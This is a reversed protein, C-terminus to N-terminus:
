RVVARHYNRPPDLYDTFALQEGQFGSEPEEVVGEDQRRRKVVRSIMEVLSQVAISTIELFPRDSSESSKNFEAVKSQLEFAYFQIEDVVTDDRGVVRLFFNTDLAKAYDIMDGVKVSDNRAYEMAWIKAEDCGLRKAMESESVGNQSRASALSYGIDMAEIREEVEKVFEPSDKHIDRVLDIVRSYRKSSHPQTDMDM